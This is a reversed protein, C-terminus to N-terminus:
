IDHLLFPLTIADNPFLARSMENKKSALFGASTRLAINL